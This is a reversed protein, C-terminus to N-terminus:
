KVLDQNGENKQINNEKLIIPTPFCIRTNVSKSLKLKQVGIRYFHSWNKEARCEEMELSMLM